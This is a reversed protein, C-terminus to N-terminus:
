YRALHEYGIRGTIQLLQLIITRAGMKPAEFYHKIKDRQQALNIKRCAVNEFNEAAASKAKIRVNMITFSLEDTLAM